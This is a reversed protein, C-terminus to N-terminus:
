STRPNKWLVDETQHRQNLVRCLVFLWDSLRNIYSLVDAPMIALASLSREARRAVTRALHCHASAMCGGPLIFERLPELLSNWQDIQAELARIRQADLYAIHVAQPMCVAAGVDFLDHQIRQLDQIFEQPAPLAILVGIHANLEDIEGLAVIRLDHKALRTGDGLGTTGDDGTKTYIKSLRNGM